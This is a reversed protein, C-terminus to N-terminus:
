PTPPMGPSHSSFITQFSRSSSAPSRNTAADKASRCSDPAGGRLLRAVWQDRSGGPFAPGEGPVAAPAPLPNAARYELDSRSGNGPPVSAFAESRSPRATRSLPRAPMKAGVSSSVQQRIVSIPDVKRWAFGFSRRAARRNMVITAELPRMQEGAPKLRLADRQAPSRRTAAQAQIRIVVAKASLVPAQDDMTLIGAGPRASSAFKPRGRPARAGGDGSPVGGALGSPGREDVM